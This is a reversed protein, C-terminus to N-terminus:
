PPHECAQAASIRACATDVPLSNTLICSLPMPLATMDSAAGAVGRDGFLSNFGDVAYSTQPECCARREQGELLLFSVVEHGLLLPLGRLTVQCAKDAEDDEAQGEAQGWGERLRRGLSGIGTFEVEGVLNSVAAGATGLAGQARGDAGVAQGDGQGKISIHGFDAGLSLGGDPLKAIDIQRQVDGGPPLVGQHFQVIAAVQEEVGVNLRALGRLIVELPLLSRAKATDPLPRLIAVEVEGIEDTDLRVVPGPRGAVLLTMQGDFGAHHEIVALVGMTISIDTRIRDVGFDGVDIGEDPLLTRLRLIVTGHLELALEM